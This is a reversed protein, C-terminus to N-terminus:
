GTHPPRPPPDGRATHPRKKKEKEARCLRHTPDPRTAHPNKKGGELGGGGGGRQEEPGRWYNVQWKLEIYAQKTLVVTQQAFPTTGPEDGPALESPSIVHPLTGRCRCKYFM